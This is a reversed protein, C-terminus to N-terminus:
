AKVKKKENSPAEVKERWTFTYLSGKTVDKNEFADGAHLREDENAKFSLINYQKKNIQLTSGAYKDLFTKINLGCGYKFDAYFEPSEGEVSVTPDFEVIHKSMAEATLPMISKLFQSTYINVASINGQLEGLMPVIYITRPNNGSTTMKSMKDKVDEFKPIEVVIGDPISGGGASSEATVFKENSSLGSVSSNRRASEKANELVTAKQEQTLDAAIMIFHKKILTM